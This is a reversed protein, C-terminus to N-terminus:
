PQDRLDVQRIILYKRTTRNRNRNRDQDRGRERTPEPIGVQMEEAMIGAPSSVPPFLTTTIPGSFNEPPEQMAQAALMTHFPLTVSM